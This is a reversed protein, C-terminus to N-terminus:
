LDPVVIRVIGGPRLVRFCERLLRMAAPPQLHELVHSGYLGDFRNAVYPFPRRVDHATVQPSVPAADLNVWDPHYTGGCGFNLLQIPPGRRAEPDASMRAQRRHSRYLRDPPPPAQHGARRPVRGGSAPM